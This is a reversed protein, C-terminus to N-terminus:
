PRFGPPTEKGLFNRVQSDAKVLLFCRSSTPATGVVGSAAETDQGAPGPGGWSQTAPLSGPSQGLGGAEGRTQFPWCASRLVGPLDGKTCFTISKDLNFYMGRLGIFCLDQQM